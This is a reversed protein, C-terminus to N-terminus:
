GDLWDECLTKHLGPLTPEHRLLHDINPKTVLAEFSISPLHHDRLHHILKLTRFADFWTHMQRNFQKVDKSQRFAHQLAESAGSEDLGDILVQLDTPSQNSFSGPQDTVPERSLIAGIDSSRSQWFAPLSGLWSRLL